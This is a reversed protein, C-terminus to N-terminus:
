WYIRSSWSRRFRGVFILKFCIYHSFVGRCERFYLAKDDLQPLQALLSIRGSFKM